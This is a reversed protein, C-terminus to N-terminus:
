KNEKRNLFEKGSQDPYIDEFKAIELVEWWGIDGFDFPKEEPNWGFAIRISLTEGTRLDESLKYKKIDSKSLRDMLDKELWDCLNVYDRPVSSPLEHGKLLDEIVVGFSAVWVIPVFIEIDSIGFDGRCYYPYTPRKILKKIIIDVTSHLGEKRLDIYNRDKELGRFLVKDLIIPLIVESGRYKEKRKAVRLELKTFTKKVYHKSIIPIVFKTHIGGYIKKLEPTLMKGWLYVKSPKAFFVKIKNQKLLRYLDDALGEEEGAYSIAVDFKFM